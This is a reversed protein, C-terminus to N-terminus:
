CPLGGEPGGWDLGRCASLGHQDSTYCQENFTLKMRIQNFKRPLEKLAQVNKSLKEIVGKAREAQVITGIKTAALLLAEAM